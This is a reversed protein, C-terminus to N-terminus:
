RYLAYPLAISIRPFATVVALAVLLSVLFPFVARTLREFSIKAIASGMFLSMGVPPTLLGIMLNLVVVVGLHIPDVGAAVLPPALIPTLVLIAAISDLIMGVGLLLVNVIILLILPDRSLALLWDAAQQPVQEITLAFAFVASAAIILMVSATADVSERGAAILGSWSLERYVFFGLFLAYLVTVAAVETPSFLGSLMGGIVLVPALLAPAARVTVAWAEPLTLRRMERPYNDRRAFWTIQLMLCVVIILAPGVGALLLEITSLQAVSAYIILPISPPFIPGITAAAVTIAAAVDAPYGQDKMVKIEIAGLGGIDALASGSVGSFLLAAIVNVQALGGKITGVLIKAFEFMRLTVGSANLLNGAFIFVPVALLPYSNLANAMRHALVNLPVDQLLFYAVGTLGMAFAIPVGVLALVLFGFIVALGSM